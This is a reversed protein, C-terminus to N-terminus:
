REASRFLSHLSSMEELCLQLGEIVRLDSTASVEVEVGTANAILEAFDSLQAHGGVLVLGNSSVDQSLDPPADGLCDQIMRVTTALVEVIANNIVTADVELEILKGQDVTRALIRQNMGHSYGLASGLNCKLTEVIEPSAVISYHQRLATAIALDLDSGGLRRSSSSVIGGLSIISAESAGGGLVVVASGVPDQVPMGLGIAAAIPAEVMSVERAGAQIAAQRLARREIPTALTPVSMVVRARSLKSLGTRRFLGSILRATVDFDITAGQALPRFAVVHRSTRSVADKAGYGVEVVDGSNTDIAVITPENFLVGREATALRTFSTGIDIAVDSAM